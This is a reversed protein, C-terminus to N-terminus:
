EFGSIKLRSDLDPLAEFAASARVTNLMYIVDPQGAMWGLDFRDSERALNLQDEGLAVRGCDFV